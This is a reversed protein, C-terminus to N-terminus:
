GIIPACGTGPYPTFISYLLHGNIKKIASITDQLTEETDFPFGVIFFTSYDIDYKEIIHIADFAEEITINKRIKKLIENNGSEIGISLHDCGAKKMISINEENVLKVHVECTWTLGPCHEILALCLSKIFHSTVGFTDDDFNVRDLGMQQLSRVESIINDVSRFRVKRGWIYKSGCFFCNYPCGRTSFINSFATIPYQSYNKLTDKAYEHPFGLINLNEILERPPNKIIKGQDRYSIGAVLELKKEGKGINKLLDVITSEGEGRVVIDIDDNKLIDTDAITAHPGGIIVIIKCNIEKAIKAIITASKFNQTKASIGV